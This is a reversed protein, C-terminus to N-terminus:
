SVFCVIPLSHSCASRIKVRAVTTRYPSRVAADGQWVLFQDESQKISAPLPSSSHTFLATTTLTLNDGMSYTSALSVRYVQSASFLGM